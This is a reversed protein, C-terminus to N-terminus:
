IAMCSLGSTLVSRPPQARPPPARSAEGRGVRASAAFAGHLHAMGAAIGASLNLMEALSLEVGSALLQMLSNLVPGDKTPSPVACFEMVICARERELVAGYYNVVNPHAPLTGM